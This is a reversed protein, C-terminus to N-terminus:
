FNDRAVVRGNQIMSRKINQLNDGSANDLFIKGTFIDTLVKVPKGDLYIAEHGNEDVLVTANEPLIFDVLEVEIKDKEVGARVPQLYPIFFEHDPNKQKIMQIMM